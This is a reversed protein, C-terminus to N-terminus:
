ILQSLPSYKKDATGKQIRTIELPDLGNRELIESIQSSLIIDRGIDEHDFDFADEASHSFPGHGIDHLLVAATGFKRLQNVDDSWTIDAKIRDFLRWFIQMAGLSHSFRNHEACPYVLTSFGLQKLRRLRQFEPTEIIEAIFDYETLDIFGHIPDMVHLDGRIQSSM